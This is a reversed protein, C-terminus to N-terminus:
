AFIDEDFVDLHPQLANWEDPGDAFAWMRLVTFGLEQAKQLTQIVQTTCRCCQCGAV